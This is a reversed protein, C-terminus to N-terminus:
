ATALTRLLQNLRIGASILLAGNFFAYVTIVGVLAVIGALPLVFLAVGCVISLLGALVLGVLNVENKRLTFAMALETVGTSIAWAGILIYLSVATLGPFVFTCLGAVISLMGSIIYHAKPGDHRFAFGILFAGDVLAYAGYLLVLAAISAGPNTLTLVGFLISAIGRVIWVSGTRAFTEM